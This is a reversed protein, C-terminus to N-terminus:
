AAHPSPCPRCFMHPQAKAHPSSRTPSDFSPVHREVLGGGDRAEAAPQAAKAESEDIYVEDYAAGEGAGSEQEREHAWRQGRGGAGGGGAGAGGGGGVTAGSASTNAASSSAALKGSLARRAGKGRGAGEAKERSHRLSDERASSSAHGHAAMGRAQTGKPVGGSAVSSSSSRLSSSSRASSPRPKASPQGSPDMGAVWALAKPLPKGHGGSGRSDGDDEGDGSSAHQAGERDFEHTIKVTKGLLDGDRGVTSVTKKGNGGARGETGVAGGSRRSAAFSGGPDDHASAGSTAPRRRSWSGSDRSGRSMASERLPASDRLAASATGNGGGDGADDFGITWAVPKRVSVPSAEQADGEQEDEDDLTGEVQLGGVLHGFAPCKADDKVDNERASPAADGDLQALDHDARAIQSHRVGDRADQAEEDEDEDEDEQVDALLESEATEGDGGADRGAVSTDARKPSKVPSRSFGNPSPPAAPKASKAPLRSGPAAEAQADGLAPRAGDDPLGQTALRSLERMDPLRQTQSMDLSAHVARPRVSAAGAGAGNSRSSVVIDASIDRATVDHLLPLAVVHAGDDSELGASALATQGSRETVTRAQQLVARELLVLLRLKADKCAAQDTSWSGYLPHLVTLMAQFAAYRGKAVTWTRYDGHERIDSLTLFFCLEKFEAASCLAEIGKLVQVLEPLEPRADKSELKELFQQKKVAFVVRAHDGPTSAELPKLFSLAADWDGTLVLKRLFALEKGLDDGQLGTEEELAVMSTIHQRSKLYELILLVVDREEFQVELM